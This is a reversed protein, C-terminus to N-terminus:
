PNHIAEVVVVPSAFDAAHICYRDVDVRVGQHLEAIERVGRPDEKRPDIDCIGAFDRVDDIDLLHHGPELTHICHLDVGDKETAPEPATDDIDCREDDIFESLGVHLRDESEGYQRTQLLPFSDRGLGGVVEIHELADDIGDDEEVVLCPRTLDPCGCSRGLCLIGTDHALQAPAGPCRVRSSM